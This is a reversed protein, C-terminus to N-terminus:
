EEELIAPIRFCDGERDPANRLVDEVALSPRAIDERMVNVLPLVGSTPPIGATDLESIQSFNSLLTEMQRRMVELEEPSFRLRALQAIHLADEMTVKM